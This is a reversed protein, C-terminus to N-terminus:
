GTTHIPCTLSHLPASLNIGLVLLPPEHKSSFIDEELTLQVMLFLSLPAIFVYKVRELPAFRKKKGRLYFPKILEQVSSSLTSPPACVAHSQPLRPLWSLAGCFFHGAEQLRSSLQSAPLIPPFLTERMELSTQSGELMSLSPGWPRKRRHFGGSRSSERELPAQSQEAWAAWDAEVLNWQCPSFLDRLRVEVKCM